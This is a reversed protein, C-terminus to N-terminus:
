SISAIWRLFEAGEAPPPRVQLLPSPSAPAVLEMSGQEVVWEFLVPEFWTEMASLFTADRVCFNPDEAFFEVSSCVTGGTMRDDVWVDGRHPGDLVLFTPIDGFSLPWSGCRVGQDAVATVTSVASSEFSGSPKWADGGLAV